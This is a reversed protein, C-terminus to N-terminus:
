PTSEAKSMLWRRAAELGITPFFEIPMCRIGKAAFLLALDEWEVDGVIAMRRVRRDFEAQFPSDPWGGRSWGLFDEVIVLVPVKGSPAGMDSMAEVAAQQAGRWESSTLQGSVKVTLIGDAVAAASRPEISAPM